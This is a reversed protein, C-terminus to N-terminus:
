LGMAKLNRLSIALSDFPDREYCNDQEVCAWEVGIDECAQIIRDWNLNGEGVEAMIPDWGNVSMDKFHVVDMRGDVKTIWQAPDGGGAQVWYTDIEFGFSQDSNELLIDLGTKDGFKLFEFNHNHYIFQLGNDQLEKAIGSAEKTFQIFTEENKRYEEPMAGLGVYKCDWLKHEDIVAELENKLRDFGIHTACITLEKSDVIAKLDQPEISGLGSVQVADYGIEKVKKLTKEIDEPTKLFDRLTYLQAAIKM